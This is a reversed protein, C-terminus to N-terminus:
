ALLGAAGEDRAQAVPLAHEIRAVGAGVANVPLPGRNAVVRAGFAGLDHHQDVIQAIGPVHVLAEAPHISRGIEHAADADGELLAAIDDHSRNARADAQPQPGVDAVQFVRGSRGPVRESFPGSRGCRDAPRALAPTVASRLAGLIPGRRGGAQPLGCPKSGPAPTARLTTTTAACRGASPFPSSKSGIRWARPKPSGPPWGARVAAPM